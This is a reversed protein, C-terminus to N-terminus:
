AATALGAGVGFRVAPRGNIAGYKVFIPLANGVTLSDSLPPM